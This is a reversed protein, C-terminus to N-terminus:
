AFLGDIVAIVSKSEVDLGALKFDATVEERSKRKTKRAGARRTATLDEAKTIGAELAKKIDGGAKLVAQMPKQIAITRSSLFHSLVVDEGYKKIWDALKMGAKFCPDDLTAKIADKGRGSAATIKGEYSSM